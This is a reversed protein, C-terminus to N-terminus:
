KLEINIGLFQEKFRQKMNELFKINDNISLTPLPLYLKDNNIQLTAGTTKIADVANDGHVETTYFPPKQRAVLDPKKLIKVVKFSNFVVLIVM